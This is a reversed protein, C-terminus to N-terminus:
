PQAITAAPIAARKAAASAIHDAVIYSVPLALKMDTTYAVDGEGIFMMLNQDIGHITLRFWADSPDNLHMSDDLRWAVDAQPWRRTIDRMIGTVQKPTLNVPFYQPTQNTTTM